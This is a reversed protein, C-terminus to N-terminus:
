GSSPWRPWSRTAAAGEDGRPNGMPSFGVAGAAHRGADGGRAPDPGSRAQRLVGPRGRRRRIATQGGVTGYPVTNLYKGLVWEKSHTKELDRALKAERIKREYGEIGSRTTDTTYLNRVLQMTLTSGGQKQKKNTANKVAARIIGEYDVGRHKYFREDEIAVTAQKLVAPMDKIAVPTVLDDNQIFGLRTKGDAAYVQTLSGLNRPTYTSLPKASNATKVVWGVAARPSWRRGGSCSSLFALLFYRGPGAGQRRRRMRASHSLPSGGLRTRTARSCVKKRLRRLCQRRLAAERRRASPRRSRIAASRWGSAGRWPKPWADRGARDRGRDGRDGARRRGRAPDLDDCRADVVEVVLTDNKMVGGALKENPIVVRQESATRMITYNLRMDEIVGYHGEFTVWDGVRIPQTIALMIGAVFNALTQRAAFGIIAAAIAGSALLSTALKSIGTFGSLAVAIGILIIAAVILRRVFRLRTAGERSSRRPPRACRGRASRATSWAALM